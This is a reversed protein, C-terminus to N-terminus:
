VLWKRAIQENEDATIMWDLLASKLEEVAGQHAPDDYLNNWEGPDQELDYLEGGNGPYYNLKWRRTRAMKADPHRVGGVGKGPVFFYGTEGHTIVEPMVNEAFLIKRESYDEGDAAILPTLSRGQSTEPIELGCFDLISPFLDVSETLQDFEGPKVAGPWSIMLPVRVSSEFFVNKGFLGHELLQDGHDSCFVIVTNDAKGSRELEDLIGGIEDDLMSVGAYYSRYIWQLPERDTEYRPKFRLIMEQVPKPLGHIYELDVQRPLPIEVDSYMSDYPAPVTHPSHPKFFSSFLFFPADGAAFRRLMRRSEMGTWATPTYEKGIVSRYPNEGPGPNSVTQQYYAGANPDNRKRWKVYDSYPDTSRVGDDLLVEDFGTERAHEATPPYFHLKGVSGTRYGNRQLIKQIKPATGTYPTYNVRNRHCHPYRGTLYSIRSPVCVPAQVFANTFNASRAALRDINPTKVIPNGNAGLCDFRLQDCMIFLINPRKSGPAAAAVSAAGTTQLFGRRTISSM